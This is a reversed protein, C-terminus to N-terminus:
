CPIQLIKRADEKCRAVGAFGGNEVIFNIWKEQDPQVTGDETKVEVSAFILLTKGVMEPTIVVPMGGILDSSGPAQLGFMVMRISRAMARVATWDLRMIATLLPKIAAVPYAGGRVHKFLRAGYKSSDVLIDHVINTEGQAM